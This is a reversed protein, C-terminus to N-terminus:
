KIFKKLGNASSQIASAREELSKIQLRIEEQDYSVYYGNSTAMLPLMATTRIFNCLKRLRADSFKFKPFDPNQEIWNNMGDVIDKAKIPNSKGRKKFGAILVPILKLEENTLDSTIEEFNTIM